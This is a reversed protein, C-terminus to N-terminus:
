KAAMRSKIFGVIATLIAGGEGSGLISGIISGADMKGGTNMLSDVLAGGLGGGALGAISNILGGPNNQKAAAGALNGGVLGSFHSSRYGRHVSLRRFANM